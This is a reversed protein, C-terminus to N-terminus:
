RYGVGSIYNALLREQYQEADLLAGLADRIDLVGLPRGGGGLVPLNQLGRAVMSQWTPYLEDAPACALVPTSMIPAVPGDGDGGAAMHRILDSKSVVGIVGGAGGCVVLLGVQRDSFARAARRVPTSEAVVTLRKAAAQQLDKVFM